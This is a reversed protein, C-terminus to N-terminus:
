DTLYAEHRQLSQALGVGLVAFIVIAYGPIQLPFDILSHLLAILSIALSALPIITRRRGGRVGRVLVGFAAIWGVTVVVTLPIGMEAAFELPTSHARDWIGVMSIAGSRYAPFGWAFTGLGTGFWPHDAIMRLTSRYTALRGADALGADDFRAGVYGGAIQLLILAAAVAGAAALIIGKGRPLDRRFFTVFSIILTFLSVIVGARSATMFMAAVCIFFMTFRIPIEKNTDALIHGPIKKWVVSGKPLRGRIKQLLLLLWVVTSSGFYAAATNRNIFTATVGGGSNPVRERWLILTPDLLFAAIGYVAYAVASWAMVQLVQNAYDRDTGVVLGCILALMLALPAGLAYFPEFRVISVSPKLPMGLAASAQAWIPDPAAIWPTDALQEHLVFGYAAIILGIGALAVLHARQLERLSAILVGLGLLGCWFAVAIHSTSGFPFPAGAVVFVLIFFSIRNSNNQSETEAM